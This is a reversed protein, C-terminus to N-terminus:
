ENQQRMEIKRISDVICNECYKDLQDQTIYFDNAFRCIKDCIHSKIDETIDNTNVNILEM